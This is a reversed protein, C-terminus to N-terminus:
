PRVFRGLSRAVPREPYQARLPSPPYVGGTSVARQVKEYTTTPKPNPRAGPFESKIWSWVEDPKIRKDGGYDDISHDSLHFFHSSQTIPKQYRSLPGGLEGAPIITEAEPLFFIIGQAGQLQFCYNKGTHVFEIHRFERVRVEDAKRNSSNKVTVCSSGFTSVVLIMMVVLIRVEGNPWIEIRSESRSRYKM